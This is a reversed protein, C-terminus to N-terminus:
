VEDDSLENLIKNDDKILDFQHRKSRDNCANSEGEAMKFLSNLRLCPEATNGTANKRRHGFYELDFQLTM